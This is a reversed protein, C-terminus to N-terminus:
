YKWINLAEKAMKQQRREITTFDWTEERELPTKSAWVGTTYDKHLKKPITLQSDKYKDLKVQFNKNNCARNLDGELIMLNGLRTLFHKFEPENRVHKWEDVRRKSPTKPMIHEVQLDMGHTISIGASLKPIQLETLIYGALTSSSTRFKNFNAEFLADGTISKMYTILSSLDNIKRHPEKEEIEKIEEPSKSSLDEAKRLARSMLGIERELKEVTSDGITFFRFAFVLTANVLNMFDAEINHYLASGTLLLPICATVDIKKFKDLKKTIDNSSWFGTNQLTIAGYWESETELEKLYQFPDNKTIHNKIVEHLQMPRVPAYKSLYHFRIYDTLDESNINTVINNWCDNILNRQNPEVISEFLSNKILDSKSLDKGRNNETEFITYATGEEKVTIKLVTFLYGITYLYYSLKTYLEDQSMTIPFEEDLKEKLYDYAFLLRKEATDAKIRSIKTKKYTERAAEDVLIYEKYLTSVAPDPYIRQKGQPDPFEQPMVMQQVNNYFFSLKTKDDIRRSIDWLLKLIVSTLTLRQQGDIVEYFNGAESFVVIGFFFQKPNPILNLSSSNDVYTNKKYVNLFDLWFQEIEKEEWAFYRQSDKMRFYHNGTFLRYINEEESIFLDELQPYM